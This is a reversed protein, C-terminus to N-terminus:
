LQPDFSVEFSVSEWRDNIRYTSNIIYNGNKIGPGVEQLLILSDFSSSSKVLQAIRAVMRGKLDTIHIDDFDKGLDNLLISGARPIWYGKKPCPSPGPLKLGVLESFKKLNENSLAKMEESQREANELERELTKKLSKFMLSRRSFGIFRRLDNKLAMQTREIDQDLSYQVMESVLLARAAAAGGTFKQDRDYIYDLVMDKLDMSQKDKM